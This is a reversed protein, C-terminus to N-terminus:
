ARIISEIKDVNSTKNVLASIVGDSFYSGSLKNLTSNVSYFVSKLPVFDIKDLVTDEYSSITSRLYKVRDQKPRTVMSAIFEIVELNQGVNSNGFKKATDFLKGLDEYEVYWPVKGKFIIEDIVNYMLTDRRVLDTSKIVVSGEEFTFEYYSVESINVITTKFPSIEMLANVNCITYEGTELIIPFLGYIFTSVGVQALGVDAFRTPIQIKCIGKTLIQNDTEVLQNKVAVSNRLYRSM